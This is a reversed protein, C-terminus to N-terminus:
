EQVKQSETPLYYTALDAPTMQLPSKPFIANTRELSRAVLCSCITDSSFGFAFKLGFLLCFAASLIEIWGYNERLCSTAFTCVELRDEPTANIQVIKYEDKTYKSIHNQKVGSAVAEIIDGDPSIILAVHNWYADKKPYRFGQGFQILRDFFGTQHVLLFDGPQMDM